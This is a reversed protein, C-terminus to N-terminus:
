VGIINGENNDYIHLSSTAVAKLGYTLTPLITSKILRGTDKQCILECVSVEFDIIEGGSLKDSVSARLQFATNGYDDGAAAQIYLVDAPKASKSQLHRQLYMAMKDDIKKEMWEISEEQQKGKYTFNICGDRPSCALADNHHVSARGLTLKLINRSKKNARAM